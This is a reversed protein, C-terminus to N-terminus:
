ANSCFLDIPGVQAEVDDIVRIMDAECAVYATMALCSNASATESANAADIYVAIVQKAGEAVFKEVLARGIGSGAGTVVIVKQNIEM